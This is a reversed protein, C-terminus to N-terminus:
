VGARGTVCLVPRGALRRKGAEVDVLGASRLRDGMAEAEVMKFGHKRPGHTGGTRRAADPHDPDEFDEDALLIRGGPRLVRAIELAARDPDVWHHMSNVAWVADIDGDRAPLNEAAGDRVAIRTRHLSLLRRAALARRLFPTPEVATVRAGARAGVLVGAGMGAGIDM